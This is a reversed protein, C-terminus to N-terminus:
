RRSRKPKEEQEPEKASKNEGDSVGEEDSTKEAQADPRLDCKEEKEQAKQEAQYLDKDKGTSLAAVLGGKIAGQIVTSDFVDQPIEGVFDKKVLYSSGDARRVLFNRKSVIFM